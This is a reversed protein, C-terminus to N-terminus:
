TEVGFYTQIYIKKNNNLQWTMDSKKAVGHM